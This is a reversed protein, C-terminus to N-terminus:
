VNCHMQFPTATRLDHELRRRNQLKIVWSRPGIHYLNQYTCMLWSWTMYTPTYYRRSLYLNQDDPAGWGLDYEPLQKKWKVAPGAGTRWGGQLRLLLFERLSSGEMQVCQRKGPDPGGANQSISFYRRSLKRKVEAWSITGREWSMSSSQISNMQLFFCSMSWMGM